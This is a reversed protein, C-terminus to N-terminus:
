GTASSEMAHQRIDLPDPHARRRQPHSQPNPRHIPQPDVPGTADLQSPDPVNPDSAPDPTPDTTTPHTAAAHRAELLDGTHEEAWAALARVPTLLSHGLDTLTHWGDDSTLLGNRRLRALTQTLMKNSIGGIRDLLEGYRLPGDGLAVVVVVSWTHGVVELTTRAPCDALFVDYDSM